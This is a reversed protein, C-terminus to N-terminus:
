GELKLTKESSWAGTEVTQETEGCLHRILRELVLTWFGRQGWNMGSGVWSGGQQEVSLGMQGTESCRCRGDRHLSERQVM